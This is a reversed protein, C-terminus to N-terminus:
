YNKILLQSKNIKTKVLKTTSKILSFPLAAKYNLHTMGVLILLIEYLVLVQRRYNSSNSYYIWIIIINLNVPDGKWLKNKFTKSWMLKHTKKNVLSKNKLNHIIRKGKKRYTQYIKKQEGERNWRIILKLM